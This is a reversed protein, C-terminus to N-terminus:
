LLILAFNFIYAMGYGNGNLDVLKGAVLPSAGNGLDAGVYYTSSAVGNREPTVRRFCAAQIAPIGIGTGFGKLIGVVCIWFLTKSRLMLLASLACLFFSTYLIGSTGKKDGISSTILRALVLAIGNVWYFPSLDTQSIGCASASLVLYTSFIGNTASITAGIAALAIAQVESACAM